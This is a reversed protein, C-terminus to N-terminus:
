NCPYLFIMGPVEGSHFSFGGWGGSIPLICTPSCRQPSAHGERRLSMKHRKRRVRYCRGWPNPAGLTDRIGHGTM